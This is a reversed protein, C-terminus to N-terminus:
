IVSFRLISQGNSSYFFKRLHAESDTYKLRTERRKGSDKEDQIDYGDPGTGTVADASDGCHAM